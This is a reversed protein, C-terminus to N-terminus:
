QRSRLDRDQATKNALARRQRESKRLVLPPPQPSPLVPNPPPSDKVKAMVVTSLPQEGPAHHHDQVEVKPTLMPSKMPASNICTAALLQLSSSSGEEEEAEKMESAISPAAGATSNLTVAAPEPTTPISADPNMDAVSSQEQKQQQQQQYHEHQHLEPQTTAAVATVCNVGHDNSVKLANFENGGEEEKLVTEDDDQEIYRMMTHVSMAAQDELVRGLDRNLGDGGATREARAEGEVDPRNTEGSAMRGLDDNDATKIPPPGNLHHEWFASLVVKSENQRRSEQERQLLDIYVDSNSYSYNNNNHNSNNTNNINNSSSQEYGPM